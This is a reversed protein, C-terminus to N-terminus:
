SFKPWTKVGINSYQATRECFRDGPSRAQQDQSTFYALGARRRGTMQSRISLRATKMSQGEPDGAPSVSMALYDAYYRRTWHIAALLAWDPGMLAFGIDCAVNKVADASNALELIRDDVGSLSLEARDAAGNIMQSMVPVDLVQGFGSYIENTADLANIGPKIAGIGLWCRLVPDVDLRIFIGLRPAGAALATIEAASLNM